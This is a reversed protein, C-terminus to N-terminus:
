IYECIIDFVDSETTHVRLPGGPVLGIVCHEVYKSANLNISRELGDIPTRSIKSSFIENSSSPLQFLFNCSIILDFVFKLKEM